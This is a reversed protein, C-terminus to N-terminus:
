EAAAAWFTVRRHGKIQKQKGGDVYNEIERRRIEEDMEASQTLTRNAKTKHTYMWLVAMILFINQAPANGSLGM